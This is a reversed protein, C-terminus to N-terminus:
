CLDKMSYLPRLLDRSILLIDREIVHPRFIEQRFPWELVRLRFTTPSLTIRSILRMYHM